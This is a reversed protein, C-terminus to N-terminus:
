IHKNNNMIHEPKKLQRPIVTPTKPYINESKIFLNIM